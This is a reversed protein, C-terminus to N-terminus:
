KASTASTVTWPLSNLIPRMTAATSQPRNQIRLRHTRLRLARNNKPNLAASFWSIVILFPATSCGFKSPYSGTRIFSAGGSSTYRVGLVSSGPPIPFGANGGVAGATAFAIKAAEPWRSRFNTNWNFAHVAVERDFSRQGCLGRLDRLDRVSGRYPFQM